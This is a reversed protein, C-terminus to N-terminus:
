KMERIKWNVLAGTVILGNKNTDSQRDGQNQKRYYRIHINIKIVKQMNRRDKKLGKQAVLM